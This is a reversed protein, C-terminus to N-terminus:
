SSSLTQSAAVPFMVTVQTGQGITSDVTITAGHADVIWRAIALGLGAGGVHSGAGSRQRSPDGRYFRDFIHPLQDAPIGCGTDAVTLRAQGAKAGVRVHVNDQPSTFKLANDLLIM